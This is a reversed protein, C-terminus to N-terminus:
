LYILDIEEKRELGSFLKVLKIENFVYYLLIRYIQSTEIQLTKFKYIYIHM